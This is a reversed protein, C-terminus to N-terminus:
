SFILPKLSHAFNPGDNVHNAKMIAYKSLTERAWTRHQATMCTFPMIITIALKENNKKMKKVIHGTDSHSHVCIYTQKLHTSHCCILHWHPTCQVYWRLLVHCFFFRTYPTSERSALEDEFWVRLELVLRYCEDDKFEIQSISTMFNPMSFIDHQLRCGLM